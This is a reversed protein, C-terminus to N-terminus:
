RTSCDAVKILVVGEDDYDGALLKRRAIQELAARHRIFTEIMTESTAGFCDALAEESVRCTMRSPGLQVPFDVSGRISNWRTEAPFEFNGKKARANAIIRNVNRRANHLRWGVTGVPVDLVEAVERYRFGELEVLLYVMKESHPLEDLADKLDPDIQSLPTEQETRSEVETERVEAVLEEAAGYTDLLEAFSVIHFSKGSSRRRFEDVLEFRPYLQRGGGRHWWDSKEEGSVLIVDVKREEALRLITQWIVVDGVGGDPKSADKYGPPIANAVRYKLDNEVDQQDLSPDFVVEPTFTTRYLESVPDNWTWTRVKEAVRSLQEGYERSAVLLKQEAQLVEAFEPLRELLPHKGIGGAPLRSKRDNLQQYLEGLKNARHRAFERAVQGPVVLRKEIVLKRYTAGIEDLTKPSLAYPVLLVNTDLVVAATAKIEELPALIATFIEAAEPYVRNLVFQDEVSKEPAV